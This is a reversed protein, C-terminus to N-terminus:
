GMNRESNENLHVQIHSSLRSIRSCHCDLQLIHAHPLPIDFDSLNFAGARWPLGFTIKKLQFARETRWISAQLVANSQGAANRAEIKCICHLRMQLVLLLNWFCHSRVYDELYEWQMLASDPKQQTLKSTQSSSPLKEMSAPAIVSFSPSFSLPSASPSSSASSSGNGGRERCNLRLYVFLRLCLPVCISRFAGGSGVGVGVLPAVCSSLQAVSSKMVMELLSFQILVARVVRCVESEAPDQKRSVGGFELELYQPLKKPCLGSKFAPFAGTQPLSLQHSGSFCKSRQSRLIARSWEGDVEVEVREGVVADVLLAIRGRGNGVCSQRPSNAQFIVLNTTRLSVRKM